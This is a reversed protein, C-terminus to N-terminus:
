DDMSDLSIEKNDLANKSLEEEKMQLAVTKFYATRGMEELEDYVLQFARVTRMCAPCHIIHSNVKAALAKTEADLRTFSVFGIVEDVTIHKM